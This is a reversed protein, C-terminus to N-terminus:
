LPKTHANVKWCWQGAGSDAEQRGPVEKDMHQDEGTNWLFEAKRSLAHVCEQCQCIEIMAIEILCIKQTQYSYNKSYVGM